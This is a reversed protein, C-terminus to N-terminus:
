VIVKKQWVSVLHTKGSAKPGEIILGYGKWNPYNDIWKVAEINSRGVIYNDRNNAERFQFELTQQIM